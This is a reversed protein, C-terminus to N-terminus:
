PSVAQSPANPTGGGTCDPVHLQQELNATKARVADPAHLLRGLIRPMQARQRPTEAAAIADYIRLYSRAYVGALRRELPLWRM